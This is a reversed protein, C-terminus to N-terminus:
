TLHLVSFVRHIRIIDIVFFFVCRPRIIYVTWFIPFISFRVTSTNHWSCNRWLCSLDVDYVKWNVLLFLLVYYPQHRPRHIQIHTSFWISDGDWLGFKAELPFLKRVYTANVFKKEAGLFVKWFSPPATPRAHGGGMRFLKKQNQFFFNTFAM